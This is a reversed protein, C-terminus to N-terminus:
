SIADVVKEAIIEKRKKTDIWTYERGTLIKGAKHARDHFTSVEIGDDLGRRKLM